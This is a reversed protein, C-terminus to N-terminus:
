VAYTEPEHAQLKVLTARARTFAETAGAVQEECEALAKPGLGYKRVADLAATDRQCEAQATKYVDDLEDLTLRNLDRKGAKVEDMLKGVVMAIPLGWDGVHNQRIVKHGLREFTRALADGIFPSRLHGVHMQKALNVGMLDVIVTEPRGEPKDIGLSPTDLAGILLALTDGRLRINIFGPGAISAETVPEAIDAIDLRSAIAAAIDRPKKGLKKALPMAANSQFDGLAPNKTGTILPDADPGAEPFAAAIAARFRDALVQLPDFTSM